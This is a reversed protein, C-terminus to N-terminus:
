TLPCDLCSLVLKIIHLFLQMPSVNPIEINLQNLLSKVIGIVQEIDSKQGSPCVTLKTGWFVSSMYAIKEQLVVEEM